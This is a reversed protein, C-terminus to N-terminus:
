AKNRIKLWRNPSVQIFICTVFFILVQIWLVTAYLTIIGVVAYTPVGFLNSAWRAFKIIEWNQSFVILFGPVEVFPLLVLVGYM